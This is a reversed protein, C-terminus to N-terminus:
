IPKAIPEDTVNKLRLNSTGVHKSSESNHPNVADRM